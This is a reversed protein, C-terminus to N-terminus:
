VRREGDDKVFKTCRLPATQALPPETHTARAVFPFSPSPFRCVLPLRSLAGGSTMGNACRPSSVSSSLIRPRPLLTPALGFARRFLPLAFPHWFLPRLSVCCSSVAFSVAAIAPHSQPVLQSTPTTLAPIPQSLIVAGLQWLLPRTCGLERKPHLDLFPSSAFSRRSM